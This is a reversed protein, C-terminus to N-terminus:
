KEGKNLKELSTEINFDNDNVETNINGKLNSRKIKSPIFIPMDDDIEDKYVPQQSVVQKEIITETIKEIPKRKELESIKNRLYNLEDFINQVHISSILNNEEISILSETKMEKEINENTEPFQEMDFFITNLKAHLLQLDSVNMKYTYRASSHINIRIYASQEIIKGQFKKNGFWVHDMSFGFCFKMVDDIDIFYEDIREQSSRISIRVTKNHEYYKFHFKDSFFM